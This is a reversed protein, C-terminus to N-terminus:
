RRSYCAVAMMTGSGLLRSAGQPRTTRTPRIAYRPEGSRSGYYKCTARRSGPSCAPSPAAWGTQRLRRTGPGGLCRWVLRQQPDMTAARPSRDRLLDAQIQDVEIFGGYQPPMKAAADPDLRVYEKRGWREPPVERVADRRERLLRWYEEPSNAGGPFRCSMGIVAIPETRTQEIAVLRAQMREVADLASKLLARHDQRETGTARTRDSGSM